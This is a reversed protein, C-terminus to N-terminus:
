NLMLQQAYYCQLVSSIGERLTHIPSWNLIQMALSADAAWCNSSWPRQAYTGQTINIKESTLDEIIGIVQKFTTEISTGINIIHCNKNQDSAALLYANLLDEIFVFDRTETLSTLKLEVKQLAAQIMTPILRTEKEGPGYVYFPRLTIIKRNHRIAYAQLLLTAAAKTAGYFNNPELVDTEKMPLKKFGYEIATGTNVFCEFNVTELATLLNTLGFVNVHSMRLMDSQNLYVGYSALHFIIQPYIKSTIASLSPPDLLDCKVISIKSELYQIRDLSSRPSVLAFVKTEQDVLKKVLHSGIFGNAGTVLVRKNKLAKFDFM